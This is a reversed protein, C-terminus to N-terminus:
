ATRPLPWLQGCRFESAARGVLDPRRWRRQQVHVRWRIAVGHWARQIAKRLAPGPVRTLQKKRVAEREARYANAAAISKQGGHRRFVSFTLPVYRTMGQMAMRLFLDYDVAQKMLPDIGGVRQYLARTWFCADQLPTWGGYLMADKLDRVYGRSYFIIRGDEDAYLDDGFIMEAGTETLVRRAADLAGPLLLDGSNIWCLIDGTAWSFGKALADAHGRDAESIWGTLRPGYKKIIDVSVDRSGGDIVFYEDGPSLNALVSEITQALYSGMNFNPTVISIPHSGGVKMVNLNDRSKAADM